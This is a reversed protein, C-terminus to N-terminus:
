GGRIKFTKEYTKQIQIDSKNVDPKFYKRANVHDLYEVMFFVNDPAVFPDYDIRCTITGLPECDPGNVNVGFMPLGGEASEMYGSGCKSDDDVYENRLIYSQVDFLQRATKSESADFERVATVCYVTKTAPDYSAVIYYRQWQVSDNEFYRQGVPMNKSAPSIKWGKSKMSRTFTSVSGDVPIGWFQLHPSACFGVSAMSLLLSMILKRM